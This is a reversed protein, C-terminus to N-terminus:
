NQIEMTSFNKVKTFKIIKDFESYKVDINHSIIIINCGTLDSLIKRLNDVGESDLSGDFIEDLILLNTSASNRMKAISRWTLLLALDIRAKEGESFSDYSFEEKFRSIIKENFNNDIQFEVFFEMTQLFNNILSNMVPVFQEILQSKIGGDKLMSNIISLVERQDINKKISNQIEKEQKKYTTVDVAQDKSSNSIKELDSQLSKKTQDLSKKNITLYDYDRTWKIIKDESKQLAEQKVKLEELRLSIKNKVTNMEEIQLLFRNMSVTKFEDTILQKCTPCNQQHDYFSINNNNTKILNDIEKINSLITNIKNQIKTKTQNFIDKDVKKIPHNLMKENLEEIEKDLNLIKDVIVLKEEEKMKTISQNFDNASDLKSKNLEYEFKLESSNEKNKSVKDKLLTSMTSFIQLDLIDEIVERRNQSTLQMFPTFTSKGLVVIQGFSKFNMKLITEEFHKQYDKNKADQPVLKDNKYIEFITPFIGRRIFFKNKDVKFNLEVVVDKQNISNALQPKNIKRFPKGYLAFAFADLITSKGSGNEGVILTSGADNLDIETFVNGSSLM